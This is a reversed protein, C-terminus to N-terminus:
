RSERTARGRDGATSHTGHHRDSTDSTEDLVGVARAATDKHIGLRAALEEFVMWPLAGVSRRFDSTIANLTIQPGNM